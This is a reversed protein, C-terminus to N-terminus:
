INYLWFAFISWSCILSADAATHLSLPLGMCHAANAFVLASCGAPTRSTLLMLAASQLKLTVDQGKWFFYHSYYAVLQPPHPPVLEYSM